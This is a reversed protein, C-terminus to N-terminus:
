PRYLILVGLDGSSLAAVIEGPIPAEGVLVNMVLM